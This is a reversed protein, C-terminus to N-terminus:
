DERERTEAASTRCDAASERFLSVDHAGLLDVALVEAIRRLFVLVPALPPRIVLDAREVIGARLVDDRRRLQHTFALHDREREIEVMGTRLAGLAGIRRHPAGIRDVGHQAGAGVGIGAHEVLTADAGGVVHDRHRELAPGLPVPEAVHEILLIHPVAVVAALHGRGARLLAPDLLGLVLHDAAADEEVHRAREALLAEVVAIADGASVEVGGGLGLAHRHLASVIDDHAGPLHLAAELGSAPVAIGAAIRRAERELRQFPHRAGLKGREGAVSPAALHPRVIGLAADVLGPM